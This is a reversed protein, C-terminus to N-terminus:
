GTKRFYDEGQQLAMHEVQVRVEDIFAGLAAKLSRGKRWRLAALRSLGAQDIVAVDLGGMGHVALAGAITTIAAGNASGALRLLTDVNDAEMRLDLTVGAKAFFQDIQRRMAFGPRLLGLPYAALEAPALRRHRLATGILLLREEFLQQQCIGSSSLNSFSLGIDIEGDILARDIGAGTLEVVSIFLQPYRGLLRAMAPIVLSRAYSAIAGVRLRGRVLDGRSQISQLSLDLQELLPGVEECLLAGAPTLAVGRGKKELLPTGTVRTLERLHQSLAPQTLNLANAARTVGGLRAVMIFSRLLRLDALQRM